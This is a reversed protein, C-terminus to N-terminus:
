GSTNPCRRRSRAENGCEEDESEAMGCAPGAAVVLCPVLMGPSVSVGCAIGKCLGQCLYKGAM